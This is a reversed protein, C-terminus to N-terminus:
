TRVAGTRVWAPTLYRWGLAVVRSAMFITLALWLGWLATDAATVAWGAVLLVGLSGVMAAALFRQDGAGVLIGDLAFALGSVPQMAGVWVLSSMVLAVIDAQDTFLSTIPSRLAITLLGLVAGVGISWGLIRGATRRALDADTAGPRSGGPEAGVGGTRGAPLGPLVVVPLRDPLRGPGGGWPPGGPRDGRHVRGAVGRHPRVPRSRHRGATQHPARRTPVSRIGRRGLRGVMVVYAAAAGCQAVVTGAASGALGWGLGFVLVLELVVNVTNAAVTVLLPTRADLHGRLAGTGAMAVCVAPLGLLSIRLYLLADDSAAASPGFADVLPAGFLGLVVVGFAGCGVGLWLGQVSQEAAEAPDGSGLLRAVTAATGFTLFIFMGTVFLLLTSAVALGALADTSIRGVVATDVLLYLPEAALTLAAPGALAWISRDISRGSPTTSTPPGSLHPDVGAHGDRGDRRHPVAHDRASEIADGAAQWRDDIEVLQAALEAELDQLDDAKAAVAAAADDARQRARGVRERGSMATRAATALGRTRSRGGLLGSLLSGAADTLETTGASDAAADANSAKQAAAAVADRM